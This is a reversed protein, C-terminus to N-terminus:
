FHQGNPTSTCDSNRERRNSGLAVPRGMATFRRLKLCVNNKVALSGLQYDDSLDQLVNIPVISPVETRGENKQIQPTPVTM